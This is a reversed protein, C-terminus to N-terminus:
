TGDEKFCEEYTLGTAALIADITNKRPDCERVLNHYLRERAVGCRKSLDNLGIRNELMWNRLGSYRIKLTAAEHFGDRNKTVADHVCQKSVGFLEGIEEYTMGKERLRRYLEVRKAM